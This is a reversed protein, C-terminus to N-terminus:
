RCHRIFDDVSLHLVLKCPKGHIVEAVLGAQTQTCKSHDVALEEPLRDVGLIDIKCGQNQSRLAAIARAFLKGLLCRYEPMMEISTVRFGKDDTFCGSLRFTVTDEHKLIVKWDVPISLVAQLFRPQPYHQEDEASLSFVAAESCAPSDFQPVGDIDQSIVMTWTGDVCFAKRWGQEQLWSEHEKAAQFTVCRGSPMIQQLHELFFRASFNSACFVAELVLTKEDLIQSTRCWSAINGYKDQLMLDSVDDGFRVGGHTVVKLGPTNFFAQKEASTM